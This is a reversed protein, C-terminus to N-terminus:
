QSLGDLAAIVATQIDVSINRDPHILEAVLEPEYIFSSNQAEGENM